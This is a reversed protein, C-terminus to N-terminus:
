SDQRRISFEFSSSARNAVDRVAADPDDALHRLANIAELGGIGTLVDALACRIIASPTDLVKIIAPAAPPGLKILAAKASQLLIRAEDSVAQAGAADGVANLLAPVARIDRLDGLIEVRRVLALIERKDGSGAALGSMIAQNCANVSSLLIPLAQPGAATLVNRARDRANPDQSDLQAIADALTSLDFRPSDEEVGPLRFARILSELQSRGSELFEYQLVYETGRHIISIMGHVGRGMAIDARAVNEEGSIPTVVDVIAEGLSGPVGHRLFRKMEEARECKDHPTQQDPPGSSINFSARGPLILAIRGGAAKLSSTLPKRVWGPPIALFFEHPNDSNGAPQRTTTNGIRLLGRLFGM